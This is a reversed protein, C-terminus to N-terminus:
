FMPITSTLGFRIFSQLSDVVVTVPTQEVSVIDGPALLLNVKGNSKARRMSLKIPVPEERGPVRRIVLVKDAVQSSCGGALALADLVRLEQSIPLEFRGPKRVLGMVHIPKPVRKTVMVVEGDALYHGGNGEQAARALNVRTIVPAPPEPPEYASLQAKAQGTVRPQGPQELLNPVAGRPAPRKIEVDPGAEESLGGAAVLAALLSSSSRPLEYVGPQRVAGIVTVRNSRQRKMTVTIHPNRFIGRAVGAMGIAQEAGELELGALAVKGILPIDANGDEGVRIPATNSGMRSFDTIITVELVDGREILENSVSFSSLRSLDIAAVNEVPPALFELPLDAANYFRHACGGGGL